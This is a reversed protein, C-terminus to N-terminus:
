APAPEPVPRYAALLRELREVHEDIGAKVRTMVATPKTEGAAKAEDTEHRLYVTRGFIEAQVRLIELRRTYPITDILAPDAGHEALILPLDALDINVDFRDRGYQQRAWGLKIETAM